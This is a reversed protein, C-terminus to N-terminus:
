NIDEKEDEKLKERIENLVKGLLNEGNWNEPNDIDPNRYDIKVGWVGDFPSGEVFYKEEFEPSLLFKKLDENQSFKAYVADKMVHYKVMNWVSDNFGKVKRGLKKAEEPTTTKRIQLYSEEDFFCQAKSAMFYQESSIWIEDDLVFKCPYFNSLQSGWFAVHKDYVIYGLDTNKNKM